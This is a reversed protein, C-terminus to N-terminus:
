ETGGEILEWVVTVSDEADVDEITIPPLLEDTSFVVQYPRRDQPLWYSYYLRQRATRQVHDGYRKVLRAFDPSSSIALVAPNKLKREVSIAYYREKVGDLKGM